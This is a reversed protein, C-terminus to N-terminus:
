DYNKVFEEVVDTIRKMDKLDYRQDCILSLEQKYLKAIETTLHHGRPIPWHVPCFINNSILYNRLSERVSSEVMIPVFLPCDKEFDVEKFLFKIYKSERLRRHLYQANECRKKKVDVVNIEALLNQSVSDISFNKYSQKIGSNFESFAALFSKKLEQAFEDEYSEYAMYEAKQKMANIKKNILKAPPSTLNDKMIFHENMKVALGGSPLPFWKRLSAILYDSKICHNPESLLRHTIDEIIIVDREKLIDIVPDMASSSYGFYSTAFFIDFDKKYDIIYKIGSDDPIVSYFHIKINRDIFPQLMSECCYSPMYVARIPKSIDELVYDIATRGSFLLLQDHGINLIGDLVSSIIISIDNKTISDKKIWFESGIEKM